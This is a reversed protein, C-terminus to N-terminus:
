EEGGDEAKVPELQVPAVDLIVKRASSYLIARDPTVILHDGNSAKNYFPNKAKLLDVDIITAVTPEVDEPIDILKRVDNIITEALAKNEEEGQSQYEELVNTMNTLQASITQRKVELVGVLVLLAVLMTVVLSSRKAM